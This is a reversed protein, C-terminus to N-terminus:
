ALVTYKKNQIGGSQREYEELRARLGRSAKSRLEEKNFTRIPDSTMLYKEIQLYISFLAAENEPTLLTSSSPQSSIQQIKYLLPEIDGQNSVFGAATNALDLATTMIESQQRSTFNKFIVM